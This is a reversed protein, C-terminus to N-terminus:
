QEQFKVFAESICLAYPHNAIDSASMSIVQQIVPLLTLGNGSQRLPFDETHCLLLLRQSVYQQHLIFCFYVLDACRPLNYGGGDLGSYKNTPVVASVMSVQWPRGSRPPIPQQRSFFQLGSGSPLPPLFAVLYYLIAGPHQSLIQPSAEYYRKYGNSANMECSYSSM